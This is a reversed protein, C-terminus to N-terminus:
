IRSGDDGDDEETYDRVEVVDVANTLKKLAKSIRLGFWLWFTFEFFTLTLLGVIGIELYTGAWNLEM